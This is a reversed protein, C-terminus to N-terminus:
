MAKLLELVAPNHNLFEGHADMGGRNFDSVCQFRRCAGPRSEYVLCRDDEGLFICRGNVYPLVKEIVVMGARQIRADTSYAAFRRIEEGELLASYEHGNQRCCAATCRDCPSAGVIAIRFRRM